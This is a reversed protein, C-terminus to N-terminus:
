NADYSIGLSPSILYRGTMQGTLAGINVSNVVRLYHKYQVRQEKPVIHGPQMLIFPGKVVENVTTVLSLCQLIKDKIDAFNVQLNVLSQIDGTVQRIQSQATTMLAQYQSKSNNLETKYLAITATTQSAISEFEDRLTLIRDMSPQITNFKNGMTEVTEFLDKCNQVLDKEEKYPM